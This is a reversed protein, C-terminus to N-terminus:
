AGAQNIAEAGGTIEALSQTIAAQRADNLTLTLDAVLEKANDTASMMALMRAAQESARADLVSQLLLAELMRRTAFDVLRTPGPEMTQEYPAAPTPVVPLLQQVQVDQRVTNVFQTSVLQVSDASGNLFLEVAENLIPQALGTVADHGDIDYAAVEEVDTLRAVHLAARRGVCIASAVVRMGALRQSLARLVKSNYAGALGRDGSVVIMLARRVPRVQYLKQEALGDTSQLSSLLAKMGATYDRATVAAAQARRLKSAAVLQMAKTIQRTSNVSRIRHKIAQLTAM